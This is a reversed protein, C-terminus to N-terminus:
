TAAWTRVQDIEVRTSARQPANRYQPYKATLLTIAHEREEGHDLVRAHGRLRIWWTRASDDSSIM